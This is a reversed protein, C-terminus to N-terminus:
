VCPGRFRLRHDIKRYTEQSATEQGKEDAPQERQPRTVCSVEAWILERMKTYDTTREPRYGSNTLRSQPGTDCRPWCPLYPPVFHNGPVHSEGCYTEPLIPLWWRTIRGARRRLKSPKSASKCVRMSRIPSRANQGPSGFPMGGQIDAFRSPLPVIRGM